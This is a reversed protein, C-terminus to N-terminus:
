EMVFEAGRAYMEQALLIAEYERITLEHRGFGSLMENSYECFSEYGQNIADNLSGFKKMRFFEDYFSKPYHIKFYALEWLQVIYSISHSRPFLYKIKDCSEVYWNPVNNQLMLEKDETTLARGKRVREAIEFAKEQSFGRKGKYEVLVDLDSQVSEKGTTRSGYFALDVLEFEDACFFEDRLIELIQRKLDEKYMEFWM